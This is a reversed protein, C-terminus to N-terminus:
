SPPFPMLDSATCKWNLGSGSAFYYCGSFSLVLEEAHVYKPSIM